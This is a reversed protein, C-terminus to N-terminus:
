RYLNFFLCSIWKWCVKIEVKIDIAPARRVQQFLASKERNLLMEWIALLKGLLEHLVGVCNTKKLHVNFSDRELKVIEVLNRLVNYNDQNKGPNLLMKELAIEFGPKIKPLEPTGYPGGLLRVLANLHPKSPNVVSGSSAAMMQAISQQLFYSSKLSALLIIRVASQQVLSHMSLCSQWLLEKSSEKSAEDLLPCTKKELVIAELEVFLM